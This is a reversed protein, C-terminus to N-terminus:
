SIQIWWNITSGYPRRQESQNKLYEKTFIITIKSKYNKYNHIFTQVIEKMWENHDSLFTAFM